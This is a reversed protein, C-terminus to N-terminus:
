RGKEKERLETRDTYEIWLCLHPTEALPYVRVWNGNALQLSEQYRPAFWSPWIRPEECVKM